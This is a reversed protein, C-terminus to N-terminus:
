GGCVKFWAGECLIPLCKLGYASCVGSNYPGGNCATRGCIIGDGSGSGGMIKKMENRNLVKKIGVFSMKEIKM